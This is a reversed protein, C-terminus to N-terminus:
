HSIVQEKNLIRLMLTKRGHHTEVWHKYGQKRVRKTETPRPNYYRVKTRLSTVNLLPTVIKMGFLSTLLQMKIIKLNKNTSTIVQKLNQVSFCKCRKHLNIQVDAAALKLDQHLSHCCRWAKMYRNKQTVFSIAVRIANNVEELMVCGYM